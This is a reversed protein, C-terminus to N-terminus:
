RVIFIYNKRNPFTIQYYYLDNGIRYSCTKISYLHWGSTLTQNISTEFDIGKIYLFPTVRLLGNLDM